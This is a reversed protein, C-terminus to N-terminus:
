KMKIQKFKTFLMYKFKQKKKVIKYKTKIYFNLNIVNIANGLIM